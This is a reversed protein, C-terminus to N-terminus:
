ILGRRSLLVLEDMLSRLAARELETLEDSGVQTLTRTFRDVATSFESQEDTTPSPRRLRESGGSERTSMTLRVM